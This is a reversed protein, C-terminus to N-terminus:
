DSPLTGDYVYEGYAKEDLGAVTATDFEIVIYTKTSDNPVAVNHLVHFIRPIHSNGIVSTVGSATKHAAHRLGRSALAVRVEAILQQISAGAM